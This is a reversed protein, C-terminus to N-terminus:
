QGARIRVTGATAGFSLRAHHWSGPIARQSLELSVRVAIGDATAEWEVIDATLDPSLAIISPEVDPVYETRQLVIDRTSPIDSLPLLLRRPKVQATRELPPLSDDDPPPPGGVLTADNQQNLSDRHTTARQKAYMYVRPASPHDTHITIKFERRLAEWLLGSVKLEHRIAAETPQALNIISPDISLIRFPIGDTSSVISVLDENSDFKLTTPECQVFKRPTARITLIIPKLADDDFTLTASQTMARGAAPFPAFRVSLAASAGPAIPDAPSEIVTCGCSTKVNIVTVPKESDNILNVTASGPNNIQLEGMEVFSPELRVAPVDDTTKDAGHDSLQSTANEPHEDLAVASVPASAAPAEQWGGAWFTTLGLLSVALALCGLRAPVGQFAVFRKMDRLRAKM